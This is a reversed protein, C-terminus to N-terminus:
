DKNFWTVIPCREALEYSSSFQLQDWPPLESLKPFYYVDDSGEYVELTPHPWIPLIVRYLEKVTVYPDALAHAVRWKFAHFGTADKTRVVENIDEKTEPSIFVRMTISGGKKVAKKAQHFFQNSDGQFVTLCGDGIIADFESEFPLDRWDGLVAQARHAAIVRPNNDIAVHALPMLEPTVGLLLVQDQPKLIQRYLLVDEQSPRLPAGWENIRSSIKAWQDM